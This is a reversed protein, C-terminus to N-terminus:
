VSCHPGHTEATDAKIKTAVTFKEISIFMQFLAFSGMILFVMASHFDPVRIVM